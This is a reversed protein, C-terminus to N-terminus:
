VALVWEPSFREPPIHHVIDVTGPLDYDLRRGAAEVKITARRDDPLGFLVNLPIPKQAPVKKRPAVVRAFPTAAFRRKKNMVELSAKATHSPIAKSQNHGGGFRSYLVPCSPARFFLVLRSHTSPTTM